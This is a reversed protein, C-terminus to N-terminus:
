EKKKEKKTKKKKKEKKKPWTPLVENRRIYSIYATFSPFFIYGSFLAIFMTFFFALVDFLLSGDTFYTFVGYTDDGFVLGFFLQLFRYYEKSIDSILGFLSIAIMMFGCIIPLLGVFTAFLRTFAVRIITIVQYVRPIFVFWRPIIIINLFFGVAFLHIAKSSIFQTMSFSDILLIISTAILIIDTVLHLPYWFGFSFHIQDFVDLERYSKDKCSDKHFKWRSFLDVILIVTGILSLFILCISLNELFNVQDLFISKQDEETKVDNFSNMNVQYNNKKLFSSLKKNRLSHNTIFGLYEKPCRDRSIEPASFFAYSGNSHTIETAINWKTCGKFKSRPAVFYLSTEVRISYVHRFLNSSVDIETNITTTGNIWTIKLDYHKENNAYYLEMLTDDVLSALKEDFGYIFDSIDAIKSLPTKLDVNLCLQEVFMSRILFIDKLNPIVLGFFIIFLVMIELVHIILLWPPRYFKKWRKMPSIHKNWKDRFNKSPVYRFPRPWTLMIYIASVMGKQGNSSGKEDDSM